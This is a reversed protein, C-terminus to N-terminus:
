FRFPNSVLLGVLPSVPTYIIKCRFIHSDFTPSGNQYQLACQCYCKVAAANSSPAYFSIRINWRGDWPCNQNKCCLWKQGSASVISYQNFKEEWAIVILYEIWISPYEILISTLSGPMMMLILIKRVMVICQGWIWMGRWCISSLSCWWENGVLTLSRQM